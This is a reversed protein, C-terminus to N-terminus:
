RLPVAPDDYSGAELVIGDPIRLIREPTVNAPRQEAHLSYRGPDLHRFMFRGECDSAVRREAGGALPKATVDVRGLFPRGDADVLHGSFRLRGSAAFEIEDGPAVNERTMALEPVSVHYRGAAVVGASFRGDQGTWVRRRASAAVEASAVEVIVGEAPTGAPDVVRGTLEVAPALRITQKTLSAPLWDQPPQALDGYTVEARWPAAAIAAFRCTGDDRTKVDRVHFRPVWGQAEFAVTAGSVPEGDPGLVTLEVDRAAPLALAASMDGSVNVKTFGVTHGQRVAVVDYERDLLGEVTFSGDAASVAEVVDDSMPPVAPPWASNGRFRTGASISIAAGALPTGESATVVRGTLRRGPGLAIDCLHVREGRKHDIAPGIAPAHGTADICIAYQPALRQMGDLPEAGELDPIEVEYSGDAAVTSGPVSWWEAWSTEFKGIRRQAVFVRAGAVPLGLSSTVKGRIVPSRALKLVIRGRDDFETLEGRARADDDFRSGVDSGPPYAVYTKEGVFGAASASVQRAWGRRAVFPGAFRGDDGTYTPEGYGISVRAGAVPRGEEDLVIGAAEFEADIEADFGPPDAAMAVDITNEAGARLDRRLEVPITDLPTGEKEWHSEPQDRVRLGAAVVTVAAPGEPLGGVSYRGEADTTTWEVARRGGAPSARWVTVGAGAVPGDPGTVVGRVRAAPVVVLDRNLVDREGIRESGPPRGPLYRTDLHWGDHRVDIWHFEAYADYTRLAYRGEAGSTTEAIPRAAWSGDDMLRVRAGPVPTGDATVVRGTMLGGDPVVIDFGGVQPVRVHSTLDPDGGPRRVWVEYRRPSLGEVHWSGDADTQSRFQESPDCPGWSMAPACVVVTAGVCPRGSTTVVRGRLAAGPQLELAVDRPPFGRAFVIERAIRAMGPASAVALFRGTRPLRIVCRGAADAAATALDVPADDEPPFWPPSWWRSPPHEDVARLSVRTGGIPAGAADKVVVVLSPEAHSAPAAAGAPASPASPASPMARVTPVTPVPGATDDTHGAAAEVRGASEERLRAGADIRGTSCAGALGAAAVVGCARRLWTRIASRAWRRM